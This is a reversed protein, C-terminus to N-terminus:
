PASIPMDLNNLITEMYYDEIYKGRSHLFFIFIFIFRKNYSKDIVKKTRERAIEIFEPTSEIM